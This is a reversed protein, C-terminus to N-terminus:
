AGNRIGAKLTDDAARRKSDNPRANIKILRPTLCNGPSELRGLRVPMSSALGVRDLLLYRLPAMSISAICRLTSISPVGALTTRPREIHQKSEHLPALSDYGLVLQHIQHPGLEHDLFAVEQHWMTLCVMHWDAHTVFLAADIVPHRLSDAATSGCALRFRRETILM